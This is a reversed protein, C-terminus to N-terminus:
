SIACVSKNKEHESALSRISTKLPHEIKDNINWVCIDWLESSILKTSNHHWELSDTGSTSGCKLTKDCDGTHPNWLKITGQYEHSGSALITDDHNWSLSTNSHNLKKICKVTDDPNWLYISKGHSGSALMNSHHAWALSSIGQEDDTTFTKSTKDNLPDFIFITNYSAVALLTGNYNWKIDQIMSKRHNFSKISKGTTIDWIQVHHDDDSSALLTGNHNWAISQVRPHNSFKRKPHGTLIQTCLGTTPDWIRITNDNSGSALLTSDHNWAISTIGKTHGNLTNMCEGTTANWINITKGSSTSILSSAHNLAMNQFIEKHKILVTSTPELARWLAAPTIKLHKAIETQLHDPINLDDLCSEDNYFAELFQSKKFEKALKATVLYLLAPVRNSNIVVPATLKKEIQIDKEMGFITLPFFTFLSYFFGAKIIKAM